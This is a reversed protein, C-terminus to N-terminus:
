IIRGKSHEWGQCTEEGDVSCGHLLCTMKSNIHLCNYCIKRVKQTPQGNLNPEKEILGAIEKAFDDLKQNYATQLQNVRPWYLEAQRRIKQELETM